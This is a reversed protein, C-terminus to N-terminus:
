GRPKGCATEWVQLTTNMVKARADIGITETSQHSFHVAFYARSISCNAPQALLHKGDLVLSEARFPGPRGRARSLSQHEQLALMDSLLAVKPPGKVGTTALLTAMREWEGASGSMLSPIAGHASDYLTFRGAHPLGIPTLHLPLVDWDCMWGGGIAAMAVYRLYCALDYDPSPGLPLRLFQSHLAAYRPHRRADALTLVRPQWGRSIWYQRWVALTGVVDGQPGGRGSALSEYYTHMVPPNAAVARRVAEPSSAARGPRPPRDYTACYPPSPTKWCGVPCQFDRLPGPARCVDGHAANQDHRELAHLGPCSESGPSPAATTPHPGPPDRLAAFAAAITPLQSAFEIPASGFLCPCPGSCGFFILFIVAAIAVHVVYDGSM